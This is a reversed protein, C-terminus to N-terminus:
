STADEFLELIESKLHEDGVYSLATHFSPGIKSLNMKEYKYKYDMYKSVRDSRTASIAWRCYKTVISFAIVSHIFSFLPREVEKWPSYFTKSNDFVIGTHRVYENFLMHGLEHVVSEATLLPDEYSDVYITRWLSEITYSRNCKGFPVEDLIIVITGSLINALEPYISASVIDHIENVGNSSYGEIRPHITYPPSGYEHSEPNYCSQNTIYRNDAVPGSLSKVFQGHEMTDENLYNLADSNSRSLRILNLYHSSIAVDLSKYDSIRDETSDRLVDGLVVKDSSLFRAESGFIHKM